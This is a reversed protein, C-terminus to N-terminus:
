PPPLRRCMGAMGASCSCLNLALQPLEPVQHSETELLLAQPHPDTSLAQRACTLGQTEMRLLAEGLLFFPILFAAPLPHQSLLRPPPLRPSSQLQPLM